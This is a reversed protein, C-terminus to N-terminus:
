IATVYKDVAAPDLKEKGDQKLRWAFTRESPKLWLKQFGNSGSWRPARTHVCRKAALFPDISAFVKLGASGSLRVKLRAM